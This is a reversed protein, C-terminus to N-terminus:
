FGMSKLNEDAIAKQLKPDEPVAGSNKYRNVAQKTTEVIVDDGDNEDIVAKATNKADFAEFEALVGPHTLGEEYSKILGGSKYKKLIEAKESDESLSQKSLVILDRTDIEQTKEPENSFKAAKELAKDRRRIYNAKVEAEKDSPTADRKSKYGSEAEEAEAKLEEVTKEDDSKEIKPEPKKEPENVPAPNNLDAPENNVKTM